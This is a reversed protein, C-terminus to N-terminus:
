TIDFFFCSGENAHNLTLVLNLDSGNEHAVKVNVQQYKFTSKCKFSVFKCSITTLFYNRQKQNLIGTAESNNNNNNCLMRNLCADFQIPYKSECKHVLECLHFEVLLNPLGGSKQRNNDFDDIQKIMADFLSDILYEVLRPTRSMNLRNLLALMFEFYVNNKGKLKLESEDDNADLDMSMTNLADVNVRDYDVFEVLLRTFLCKLYKDICSSQNLDDLTNIILNLQNPQSFNKLLKKLSNKNILLNNGITEDNLQSQVILCQALLASKICDLSEADYSSSSSEDKENSEMKEVRFTALGKCIAFLAKNSTENAFNFKEFLFSCVLYAMQKYPIIDSKVGDFLVPLLQAFYSEQQKNDRNKRANLDNSAAALQKVSQLLCKTLFSFSFNLGNLLHRQQSQSSTSEYDNIFQSVCENM